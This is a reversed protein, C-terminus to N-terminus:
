RSGSRHARILADVEDYGSTDPVGDTTAGADLLAAVTDPRRWEKWYSDVCAKVALQMPTQGKRNRANVDAGREILLRATDHSARWAAVHLATSDPAEGWYGDGERFRADVPVGLDLLRRVGGANDNGAFEVLVKGGDAILEKVVDPSSRAIRQVADDDRLACAALLGEIGALENSVGRRAALELIDSRGRRAALGLATMPFEPHRASFDAGHDLLLEILPLDNDREIAHQLPTLGRRGAFNPDAGHELLYRVGDAHHWDHKRILMLSLSEKTLRGTEVVAKLAELDWDEPTHYVVEPDNPDAGRDILLKTLAAHHAVGAAGYLATEHEGNLWFGTNPDAGADLLATAARIFGPARAPELRLYKSLGLYNLADGGYPPSKANLNAPDAAIFRRVGEDDGLVAATHIDSSALDPHQALLQNARDLRGHWIAAELFADRTKQDPM